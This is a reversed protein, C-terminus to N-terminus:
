PYSIVYSDFIGFDDDNISMVGDITEVQLVMSKEDMYGINPLLDYMMQVIVRGYEHTYAMYDEDSMTSFDYEAYKTWFANLPEYEDNLYLDEAQEMIDIPSIIVKVSYSDDDQKVAEQVEYKSYSYIEKYMEIVENQFDEDLDAYTEGYDSEVIGWYNVFYEAEVELGDWYAQASEEETGDVLKLYDETVRGLYIEDLNGQVLATAQETGSNGCATLGFSMALILSAALVCKKVKM